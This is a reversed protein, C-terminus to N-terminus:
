PNAEDIELTNTVERVSRVAKVRESVAEWEEVSHVRGQITVAGRAVRISIKRLRLAPHANLAEKVDMRIREDVAEPMEDGVAGEVTIENMVRGSTGVANEIVMEARDRDAPTNVVGRLHVARGDWDVNIHELRADRLAQRAPGTPDPASCASIALTMVCLYGFRRAAMM